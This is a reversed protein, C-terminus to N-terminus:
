DSTEAQAIRAFTYTSCGGRVAVVDASVLMASRRKRLIFQHELEEADEETKYAVVEFDRERLVRLVEEDDTSFETSKCSAADSGIAAIAIELLAVSESPIRSEMASCGSALVLLFIYRSLRRAVM